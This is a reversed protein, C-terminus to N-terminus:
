AEQMELDGALQAVTEFNEDKFYLQYKSMILRLENVVQLGFGKFRHLSEDATFDTFYELSTMGVTKMLYDLVKKMRWDLDTLNKIFHLEREEPEELYDDKDVWPKPLPLQDKLLLGFSNVLSRISNASINMGNLREEIELYTYKCLDGLTEIKIDDRSFSRELNIYARNCIRRVSPDEIRNLYDVASHMDLSGYNIELVKNVKFDYQTLNEM